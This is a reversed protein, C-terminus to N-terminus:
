KADCVSTDPLLPWAAHATHGRAATVCCLNSLARPLKTLFMTYLFISCSSPFIGDTERHIEGKTPSLVQNKKKKPISESCYNQIIERATLKSRKKKRYRHRVHASNMWKPNSQRPKWFECSPWHVTAVGGQAPRGGLMFIVHGCGALFVVKFRNLSIIHSLLVRSSVTKIM